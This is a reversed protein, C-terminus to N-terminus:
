LLKKAPRRCKVFLTKSLIKLISSSSLFTLPHVIQLINPERPRRAKAYPDVNSPGLRRREALKLSVALCFIQIFDRNSRFVMAQGEAIAEHKTEYGFVLLINAAYRNVFTYSSNTAPGQPCLPVSPSRGRTWQVWETWISMSRVYM